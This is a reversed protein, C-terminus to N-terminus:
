KLGRVGTPHSTDGCVARGSVGFKLGRVGTPHSWFWAVALRVRLCKLGRVGTPHSTSIFGGIDHSGIEIWAGWHPAVRIRRMREESRDFKM